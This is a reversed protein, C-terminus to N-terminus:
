TPEERVDFGASVLAPEPETEAFDFTHSSDREAIRRTARNRRLRERCDSIRQRMEGGEYVESTSPNVPMRQNRM